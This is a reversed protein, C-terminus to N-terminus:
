RRNLRPRLGALHVREPGLGGEPGLRGTHGLGRTRSRLWRRGAGQGAMRGLHGMRGRRRIRDLLKM